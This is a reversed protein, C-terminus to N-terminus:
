EADFVLDGEPETFELQVEEPIVEGGPRARQLGAVVVFDDAALGSRIVRMGRYIPGLVVPKAAVKGEADVVMVIRRDQDSLIAADPILVADYEGSGPLRIRAFLGPVLLGSANDFIARGIITGTGADLENDVFNMSGQHPWGDEDSLRAFVVNDASRSSPRAGNRNVRSYKLFQAESATFVLHIPNTSVIASLVTEGAAVLNGIDVRSNSIRGTFPAKVETFELDLGAQRVAAEAVAVQADARLSSALREDLVSESITGNRVLQEARAMEAAALTQEAKAARLEAEVRAYAADFPRSDIVFLVDGKEVLQGDAFLIERLYGSVRARLEVREVAEFRGTYEDWDVVRAELPHAVDVPMPGMQAFAPLGCASLIALAAVLRRGISAIGM